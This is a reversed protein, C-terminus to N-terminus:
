QNAEEKLSSKRYQFTDDFGRAVHAGMTTTPYRRPTEATVFRPLAEIVCDIDQDYFFALSHRPRGTGNIVRHLTAPWFDNTWMGTADGLPCVFTGPVRPAMIWRGQKDLIQLGPEDIQWILTVVGYDTHTGCGIPGNAGTPQQPPYKVARLQALPRQSREIFFGNPLGLAIAFLESINECLTLWERYLWLMTPRFEPMSEPFSNPGHFFKRAKVDPDDLPLELAMDFVEKIDTIKSGYANEEGPPSYGRHFESRAIHIKLKEEMPLAFFDYVAKEAATLLPGSVGHDEVYFFGVNRCLEGVEQALERKSADDRNRLAKLSVIPIVVDDQKHLRVYQLKSVEYM